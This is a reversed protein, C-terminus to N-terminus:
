YFSAEPGVTGAKCDSALLASPPALKLIGLAFLQAQPSTCLGEQRTNHTEKELENQLCGFRLESLFSVDIDLVPAFSLGQKPIPEGKHSMAVHEIRWVHEGFM